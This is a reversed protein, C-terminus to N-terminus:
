KTPKKFAALDFAPVAVKDAVKARKADREEVLGALHAEIAERAKATDPFQKADVMDLATADLFASFTAKTDKGLRADVRAKIFGEAEKVTANTRGRYDDLWVERMATYQSEGREVISWDGDEWSAIRKGYQAAKVAPTADKGGSNYANMAVVRLAKVIAGDQGSLFAALKANDMKGFALGPLGKHDDGNFMRAVEPLEITVKVM